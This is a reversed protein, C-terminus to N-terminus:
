QQNQSRMREFSRSYPAQAQFLSPLGKMAVVAEGADPYNGYAARYYQRGSFKVSYVFLDERRVLKSAKLLFDELRNLEQIDVTLLQIAHHGRPALQLWEQTATFRERTLEGRSPPIPLDTQAAASTTAAQRSEM